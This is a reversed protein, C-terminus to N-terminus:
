LGRGAHRRPRAPRAARDFAGLMLNDVTMESFLERKEPVLNMGAAVMERSKPTSARKGDFVIRGSSPLVGMIASLLTTKGAGNPRDRDRDPGPRGGVGTVAEIKDYAVRLGQVELLKAAM